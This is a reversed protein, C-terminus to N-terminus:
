FGAAREALTFFMPIGKREYTRRDSINAVTLVTKPSKKKMKKWFNSDYATPIKIPTSLDPIFYKIGSNTNTDAKKCIQM